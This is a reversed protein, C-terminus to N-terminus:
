ISIRSRGTEPEPPLRGLLRDTLFKQFAERDTWSLAIDVPPAAPDPRTRGDDAIRLGMTRFALFQRSFALFVAVTDFLISSRTEPSWNLQQQHHWLRYQQFVATLLPDGSALLRQYGEGSLVVQGCTDLPTIVASNWAAAFVTRAAALDARINWEAEPPTTPDSGHRISGQMGVFHLKAALEPRRRLLEGLNTLPAIAVVTLPVPSRDILEILAAIGDGHVTGPYDALDYGAVYDRATPRDDPTDTAPGIGIPIGTRGAATLIKAAIRARYTTDACATMVMKLEIEPCRLLFALAWADDIDTGLDTDLVVPIPTQHLMQDSRHNSHNM